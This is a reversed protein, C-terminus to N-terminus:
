ARFGSFFSEDGPEIFLKPGVILAISFNREVAKKPPTAKADM